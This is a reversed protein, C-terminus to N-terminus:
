SAMKPFLSKPQFFPSMRHLVVRSFAEPFPAGWTEFQLNALPIALGLFVEFAPSATYGAASQPKVQMPAILGKGARGVFYSIWLSGPCRHCGPWFLLVWGRTTM